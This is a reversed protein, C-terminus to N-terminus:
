GRNTQQNEEQHPNFVDKYICSRKLKEFEDSSSKLLRHAGSDSCVSLFRVAVRLRLCDLMCESFWGTKSQFTDLM